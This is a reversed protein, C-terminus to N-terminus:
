YESSPKQRLCEAYDDIHKGRKTIINCTVQELYPKFALERNCQIGHYVLLRETFQNHIPQLSSIDPSTKPKIHDDEISITTCAVSWPICCRSSSNVDSITLLLIIHSTRNRLALRHFVIDSITALGRSSMLLFVVM